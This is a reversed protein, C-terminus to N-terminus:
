HSVIYIDLEKQVLMKIDIWYSEQERNRMQKEHEAKSECFSLANGYMEIRAVIDEPNIEESLIEIIKNKAQEPTLIRNM